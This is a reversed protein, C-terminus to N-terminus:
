ELLGKRFAGLYKKCHKDKDTLLEAAYIVKRMESNKPDMIAGDLGAMICLSMYTRNLLARKPLDYSVNSLGCMFHVENFKEKIGSITNLAVNGIKTNSSVPQILPDIYIDSVAIGNEVMEEIMKIGITTRVQADSSIGHEDDITLAIIGANYKKILPLIQDFREREYTTSNILPRLDKRHLELGIELVKADPSDICLPLEVANQVTKVLWKMGEIEENEELLSACNVDIYDAGMEEQAKALNTIFDVDRARIAESVGKLSTNIKEGVIIM